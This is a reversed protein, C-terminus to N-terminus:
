TADASHSLDSQQLAPLFNLHLIQASESVKVTVCLSFPMTVLVLVFALMTLLMACVGPGEPDAAFSFLLCNPDSPPLLFFSLISHPLTSHPPPAAQDSSPPGENKRLLNHSGVNLAAEVRGQETKM